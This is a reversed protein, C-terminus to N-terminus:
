SAWRKCEWGPLCIFKLKNQQYVFIQLGKAFNIKGNKEQKPFISKTGVIQCNPDQWSFNPDLAAVQQKLDAFDKFKQCSMRMVDSAFIQSSLTIALLLTLLNKIKM